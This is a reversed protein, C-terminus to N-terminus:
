SKRVPAVFLWLVFVSVSFGILAGVLPAMGYSALLLETSVRGGAAQAQLQASVALYGIFLGLLAFVFTSALVFISQIM